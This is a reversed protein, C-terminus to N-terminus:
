YSTYKAINFHFATGVRRWCLHYTGAVLSSVSGNLLGGAPLTLTPTGGSVTIALDGEMGSTANTISLTRNASITITKNLGTNCDWVITAADTLSTYPTISSGGGGGNSRAYARTALTDTVANSSNTLKVQGQVYVNGANLYLKQNAVTPQQYGYIIALTTDGLANSRDLSNIILRNSATNPMYRGALYGICNNNVGAVNTYGAMFGIYNNYFGTTNQHGSQGGVFNNAYGTTNSSGAQTGIFNNLHGITTLYGAQAGIIINGLGTTNSFGARWGIFTNNYATTNSFGAKEGLFTNQGLGTTYFGAQYGVMSNGTGKFKIYSTDIYGSHTDVYKKTVLASDAIASTYKYPKAVVLKFANLLSDHVVNSINSTTLITPKNAISAGGSLANWDIYQASLSGASGTTNQNFVPFNTLNAASLPPLQGSANLQVLNNAGTGVTYSAGWATGTSYPVGVAPYTMRQVLTPISIIRSTKFLGTGAVDWNIELTDARSTSIFKRNGYFPVNVQAHAIQLCLFLSVLVKRMNNNNITYIM